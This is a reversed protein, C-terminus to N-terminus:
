PRMWAPTPIRRPRPPPVNLWWSWFRAVRASLKWGQRAMWEGLWRRSFSRLLWGIEVPGGHELVRPVIVDANRIPHLRDLRLDPFMWQASAPVPEVRGAKHERVGELDREDVLWEGLFKGVPVITGARLYRYAQRRSKGIRRCLESVSVAAPVQLAQGRGDETRVKWTRGDESELVTKM